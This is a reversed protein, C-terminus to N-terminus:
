RSTERMFKAKRLEEDKLERRLLKGVKSKPLMDRFEIYDPVEYPLLRERCHRILDYAAVGRANEDLIVFAKVNEGAVPDPTGVVGAAVVAPHDQLVSEVRSASIRFGKHKIMDARRDVFEIEASTTLKVYDGTRCWVERDLTVYTGETETANDWYGGARYSYESTILLEGAEGESVDALTEPDVVKARRTPLLKGVTKVGPERDLMSVSVCVTETSGYVQHIPLGFREKWRAAVEAPLVDGASWCYQLSSLDYLELRDNELIQRYLAPVGILLTGAHDQISALVADTGPKALVVITSGLHLGIGFIMDQTFMHYLPLPAILTHRAEEIYPRYVERVGAIGSLLEAHSHPVAKPFGTTGGTYLMHALRTESDLELEGDHPPHRHLLRKFSYVNSDRSVSGKPLRDFLRGFIRKWSPLLDAIGTVIIRELGTKPLVSRVYGFNTDACIVTKSGSHNLLYVLEHPTYISSIPIPVAGLHQLGLYGILWQPCNPLYILVRDDQKVGLAASASAFRRVLDRLGAYSFRTGLFLVATREPHNQCASEFAGLITKESDIVARFDM